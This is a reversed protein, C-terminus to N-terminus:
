GRKVIKWHAIGLLAFDTMTRLLWVNLIGELGFKFGSYCILPVFIVVESLHIRATLRSAGMGHLVAYPVQALSSFFLGCVLTSLILKSSSSNLDEGLWITFLEVGYWVLLGIVPLLCLCIILLSKITDKGIQPQSSNAVRPYLVACVAGPIFLFRMVVDALASYVGYIASPLFYGAVLRDANNLLTSSMNSLSTWGSFAFISKSESFFFRLRYPIANLTPILILILGFVRSLLLVVSVSQLDLFGLYCLGLLAAATVLATLIKTAAVVHFREFGEMIGKCVAHLIVFFVTAALYKTSRILENQLGDSDIKPSSSFYLYLLSYFILSILLGIVISFNFLGWILKLEQSGEKKQKSVFYTAGRSLGLDFISAVSLLILALSIYGFRSIGFSSILIPYLLLFIFAPIIIGGANVLISTLKM